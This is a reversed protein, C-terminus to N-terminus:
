LRKNKLCEQTTGKAAPTAQLEATAGLLLRLEITKLSSQPPQVDFRLWSHKLAISDGFPFSM